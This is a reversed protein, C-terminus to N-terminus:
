RAPMYWRVKGFILTPDELLGPPRCVFPVDLWFVLLRDRVATQGFSGEDRGRQQNLGSRKDKLLALGAIVRGIRQKSLFAALFDGEVFKEIIDLRLQGRHVFIKEIDEHM